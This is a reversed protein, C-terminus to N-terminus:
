DESIKITYENFVRENEYGTPTAPCIKILELLFDLFEEAVKPARSDM